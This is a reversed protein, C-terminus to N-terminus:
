KCAALGRRAGDIIEAHDHEDGSAKRKTVVLLARTMKSLLHHEFIHWPRRSLGVHDLNLTRQADKLSLPAASSAYNEATMM